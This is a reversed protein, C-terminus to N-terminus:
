EDREWLPLRRVRVKQRSLSAIAGAELMDELEASLAAILLSALEAARLTDVDRILLLSPASAGSAFLLQVFDHDCSIVVRREREARELIQQDDVSSLGLDDVHVAEHGAENLPLCVRHSLNEDVLFRV